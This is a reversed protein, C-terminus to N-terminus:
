KILSLIFPGVTLVMLLVALIIMIINFVRVSSSASSSSSTSTCKRQIDLSIAATTVLLSGAILGIIADKEKLLPNLKSNLRGLIKTAM